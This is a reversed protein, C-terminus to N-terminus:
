SNSPHPMYRYLELATASIPMSQLIVHGPGTVTTNFLGEGGLLINKVGKIMQVDMKCSDSMAAVYGTNVVISEGPSLDYEIAAGDIELFAIGDGSLKQMIFGEGGFFGGSIKKQFYISLDIGADAALFSSKQIIWGNRNSVNVAKISGPFSSAFAIMGPGGKAVYQNQFLAEGSFMRGFVKGFGGEITKMEMNPSMWSMAGRENFLTEGEALNCIVVPLNGGKIEYNM